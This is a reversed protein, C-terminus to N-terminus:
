GSPCRRSFRPFKLLKFLSYSKEMKIEEKYKNKKTEKNKGRGLFYESIICEPKILQLIKEAFFTNRLEYHAIFVCLLVM